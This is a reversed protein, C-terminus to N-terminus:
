MEPRTVAFLKTMDLQTFQREYAKRHPTGELGVYSYYMFNNTLDYIAVHTEGSQIAPLIYRITNEVTINGYFHSLQDYLAIDYNPCLWDMGWYVIDKMRPHWTENYPELNLDDYVNLVSYSYQYGNFESVKGDGVGFLLDCTRPTNILRSTADDVSNDFQLIDRLVMTFPYGFRSEEGWSADEFYVGIESIATQLSSMGTMSGIWGIWGVNAFPHGNDPHYVIVAPFKPFPGDTDWDLSRLQLLNTEKGVADGWVGFMSCTGKTLEGLLSVHYIDEFTVASSNGVGDALGHFEEFWYDPTYEETAIATLELLTDLGIKTIEDNIWPPLWEAGM